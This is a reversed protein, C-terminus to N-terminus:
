DNWSSYVFSWHRIQLILRQACESRYTELYGRLNELV